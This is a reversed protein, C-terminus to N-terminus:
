FCRPRVRYMERWGIPLAWPQITFMVFEDPVAAVSPQGALFTSRLQCFDTARLLIFACLEAPVAGPAWGASFEVTLDGTEPLRGAANAPSPSAPLIVGGDEGLQELWGALEVGGFSVRQIALLNGKPLPVFDGWRWWVAPLILRWVTPAISRRTHNEAVALASRLWGLLQANERAFEPDDPDLEALRANLRLQDVGVPLQADVPGGLRDLRPPPLDARRQM